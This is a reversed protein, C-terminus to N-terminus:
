IECWSCTEMGDRGCSCRARFYWFSKNVMWQRKTIRAISSMLFIFVPKVKCHQGMDGIIQGNQEMKWPASSFLFTGPWQWKPRHHPAKNQHQTSSTSVEQQVWCDGRTVRLGWSPKRLKPKLSLFVKATSIVSWESIASPKSCNNYSRTLTLTTYSLFYLIFTFKMCFM